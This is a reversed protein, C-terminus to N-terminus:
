TLDSLRFRFANTMADYVLNGGTNLMNHFTLQWTSCMDTCDGGTTWVRVWRSYLTPATFDCWCAPVPQVHTAQLASHSMNESGHCFSPSLPAPHPNCCSLPSCVFLKQTDYAHTCRVTAESLSFGAESAATILTAGSYILHLTTSINLDASQFSIKLQNLVKWSMTEQKNIAQVKLTKTAKVAKMM